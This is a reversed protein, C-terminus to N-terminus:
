TAVLALILGVAFGAVLSAIVCGILILWAADRHVYWWGTPDSPDLWDRDRWRLNM